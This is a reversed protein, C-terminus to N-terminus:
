KIMEEIMAMQSTTIARTDTCFALRILTFNKYQSDISRGQPNMKAPIIAMPKTMPPQKGSSPILRFYAREFPSFRSKVPPSEPYFSHLCRSRSIGNKWTAESFLM